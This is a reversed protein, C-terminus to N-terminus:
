SNIDVKQQWWWMYYCICPLGLFHILHWVNESEGGLLKIRRRINCDLWEIKNIILFKLYTEQGIYDRKTDSVIHMNARPPAQIFAFYM